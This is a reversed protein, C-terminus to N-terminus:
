RSAALPQSRCLVDDAVPRAAIQRRGAGSAAARHRHHRDQRRRARRRGRGRGCCAIQVPQDPLGAAPGSLFLKQPRVGLAPQDKREPWARHAGGAARVGRQHRAAHGANRCRGALCPQQARRRVRDLRRLVTKLEFHGPRAGGHRDRSGLRRNRGQDAQREDGDHGNGWCCHSSSGIGSPKLRISRWRNALSAIGTGPM